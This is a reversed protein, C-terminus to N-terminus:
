TTTTFEASVLNDGLPKGTVTLADLKLHNLV